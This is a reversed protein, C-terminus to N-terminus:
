YKHVKSLTIFVVNDCILKLFKCFLISVINEQSNLPWEKKFQSASIYISHLIIQLKSKTDLRIKDTM